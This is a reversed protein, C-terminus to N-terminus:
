ALLHNQDKLSNLFNAETQHGCVKSSNNKLGHLTHSILHLLDLQHANIIELTLM